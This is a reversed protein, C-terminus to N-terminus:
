FFPDALSWGRSQQWTHKYFTQNKTLKILFQLAVVDLPFELEANTPEAIDPFVVKLLWLCWM